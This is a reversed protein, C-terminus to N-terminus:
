RLSCYLFLWRLWCSICLNRRIFSKFYNASGQYIGTEDIERGSRWADRLNWVYIGLFLLLLLGVIVGSIMLMM